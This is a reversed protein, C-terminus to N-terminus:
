NSFFLKYNAHRMKLYLVAMACSFFFNLLFASAADFINPLFSCLASVIYSSFLYMLTITIIAPFYSTLGRLTCILAKPLGSSDLLFFSTLLFFPIALSHLFISTAQFAISLVTSEIYIQTTIPFTTNLLFFLVLYLLAFGFIKKFNSLFYFINKIEISPRISLLAFYASFMTTTIFISMFAFFQPKSYINFINAQLAIYLAFLWWFYKAFIIISRKFTKLWSFTFILLERKSLM